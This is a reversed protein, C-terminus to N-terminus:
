VKLGQGKSALFQNMLSQLTSVTDVSGPYKRAIERAAFAFAESVHDVQFPAFQTATTFVQPAAPAETAIVAPPSRSAPVPANGGRMVHVVEKLSRLEKIAPRVAFLWGVGGTAFGSAVAAILATTNKGLDWWASAKEVVGSGKGGSKGIAVRQSAANAAQNKGLPPVPEPKLSPIVGPNKWFNKSIEGPQEPELTTAQDLPTKLDPEAVAPKQGSAPKEETRPAPTPERPVAAPVEREAAPEQREERREGGAKAPETGEIRLPQAAYSPSWASALFRRIETIGVYNANWPSPEEHSFVIGCLDGRSDFVGGGSDGPVISHEATLSNVTRRSIRVKARRRVFERGLVYGGVTVQDGEPPDSESLCALSQTNASPITIIALDAVKSFNRVSAKIWRGDVFVEVRQSERVTVVHRATLLAWGKNGQADVADDFIVASGRSVTGWVCGTIVCSQETVQVPVVAGEPLQDSEAVAWSCLALVGVILLSVLKLSRQVGGRNAFEERARRRDRTLREECLECITSRDQASHSWCNMCLM